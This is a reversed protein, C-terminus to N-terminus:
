REDHSRTSNPPQEVKWHFTPLHESILPWRTSPHLGRCQTLGRHGPPLTEVVPRLTGHEFDSEVSSSGHLCTQHVSFGDSGFTRRSTHYPPATRTIQGLNLILDETGFYGEHQENVRMVNEIFRANKAM